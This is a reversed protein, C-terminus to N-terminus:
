QVAETSPAVILGGDGLIERVLTGTAEEAVTRDVHTYIDATTDIRSHGLLLQATKLDRTVSHLISAASHRFIHLGFGRKRREIGAAELAPYLVQKRLTDPDCPSGDGRTFVFDGCDTWRCQQHHIRLVELLAQTLYITRVSSKTKPAVLQGRWLAHTVGITRAEFDVSGWRLALVEGARLGTLAVVLFLTRYDPEFNEIVSRIQAPSLVPKPESEWEPRHLKRRLPIDTLLDYDKAVEFILSLLNYVNLLTKGDLSQDKRKKERMAVFLTTIDEPKIADIVKEGLNPLIYSRLLSDYGYLTSPKYQKFEVYRRWLDGNIFASLSLQRTQRFNNIANIDVMRKDAAKRAEREDRCGYLTETVNRWKDGERLRYRLVWLTAKRKKRKQV